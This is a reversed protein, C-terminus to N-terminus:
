GTAAKNAVKAAKNKNRTKVGKDSSQQTYRISKEFPAQIAMNKTRKVTSKVADVMQSLAQERRNEYTAETEQLVEAMKLLAASDLRLEALKDTSDLFRQYAEAPVGAEAGHSSIAGELERIVDDIGPQARRMGRLAGPPQDVLISVIASLDFVTPGTYPQGTGTTM